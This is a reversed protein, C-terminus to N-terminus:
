LDIPIDDINRYQGARYPRPANGGAASSKGILAAKAKATANDNKSALAEADKAEKVEFKDLADEFSMVLNPNGAKIRAQNIENMYGFVDNIRETDTTKIRDSKALEAVEADWSKFQASQTEALADAQAKTEADATNKERQADLKDTAKIIELIQRNNKPAFDDPLDEIKSIKHTVGDADEVEIFLEEDSPTAPESKPKEEVVEEEDGAEEVEEEVVEEEAAEVEEAVEEAVEEKAAPQTIGLEADIKANLETENASVDGAVPIDVGNVVPTESDAM